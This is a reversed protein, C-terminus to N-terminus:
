ERRRRAPAPPRRVIELLLQGVRYNDIMGAFQEAGPGAAFLPIMQGTHGITTYDAVIRENRAGRSRMTLM